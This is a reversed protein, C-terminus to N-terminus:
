NKTCNDNFNKTHAREDTDRSIKELKDSLIVPMKLNRKNRRVATFNAKSRQMATNTQRLIYPSWNSLYKSWSSLLLAFRCKKKRERWRLVINENLVNEGNETNREIMMMMGGCFDNDSLSNEKNERLSPACHHFNKWLMLFNERFLKMTSIKDTERSMRDNDTSKKLSERSKFLLFLLSM